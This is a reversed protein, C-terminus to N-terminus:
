YSYVGIPAYDLWNGSGRKKIAIQVLECDINKKDVYIMSSSNANISALIIERNSRLPEDVYKLAEGLADNKIARLIFDFDNSYLKSLIHDDKVFKLAQGYTNIAEYIIDSDITYPRGLYELIKGNIKVAKLIFETNFLFRNWKRDIEIPEGNPRNHLKLYYLFDDYDNDIGKPFGKIISQNDRDDSNGHIIIDVDDYDKSLQFINKFKDIVLYKNHSVSTYIIKYITSNYRIIDDM